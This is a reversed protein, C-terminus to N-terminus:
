VEDDEAPYICHLVTDWFFIEGLVDAYGGSLTHM